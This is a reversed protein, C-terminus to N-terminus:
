GFCVTLVEWAIGIIAAGLLVGGIVWVMVAGWGDLEVSEDSQRARRAASNAAMLSTNIANQTAVRVAVNM